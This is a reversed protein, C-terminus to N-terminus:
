STMNHKPIICIDKENLSHKALPNSLKELRIRVPFKSLISTLGRPVITWTIPELNSNVLIPRRDWLTMTRMHANALTEISKLKGFIIIRMKIIILPIKIKEPINM